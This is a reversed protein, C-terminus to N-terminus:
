AGAAKLAAVLHALREMLAELISQFEALERRYVAVGRREEFLKRLLDSPVM